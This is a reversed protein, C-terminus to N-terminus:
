RSASGRSAPPRVVFVQADEILRGYDADMPLPRMGIVATWRGYADLVTREVARQDAHVAPRVELGAEAGVAPGPVHGAEGTM